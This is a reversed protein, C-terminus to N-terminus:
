NPLQVPCCLDLAKNHQDAPRVCRGKRDLALIHRYQEETLTGRAHFLSLVEVTLTGICLDRALRVKEREWAARLSSLQPDSDLMIGLAQATYNTGSYVSRMYRERERLAERRSGIDSLRDQVATRDLPATM